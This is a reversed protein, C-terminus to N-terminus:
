SLSIANGIAKGVARLEVVKLNEVKRLIEYYTEMFNEEKRISIVEEEKM